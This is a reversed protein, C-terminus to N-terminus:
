HWGLLRATSRFVFQNGSHDIFYETEDARHSIWYDESGIFENLLAMQRPLDAIGLDNLTVNHPNGEKLLSHQYAENGWDGYFAEDHKTGLIALTINNLRDVIRRIVKSSGTYNIKYKYLNAM